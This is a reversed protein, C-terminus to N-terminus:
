KKGRKELKEVRKDLDEVITVMTILMEEQQKTKETLINMKTLIEQLSAM